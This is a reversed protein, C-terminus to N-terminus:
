KTRQTLNGSDSVRFTRDSHIIIEGLSFGGNKRTYVIVDSGSYELFVELEPQDPEYQKIKLRM